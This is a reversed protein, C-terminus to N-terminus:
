KRPPTPTVPLYASSQVPPVVAPIAIPPTVQAWPPHMFLGAVLSAAAAGAAMVSTYAPFVSAFTALVGAVATFVLTGWKLVNEV